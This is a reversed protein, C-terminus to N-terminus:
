VPNAYLAEFDARDTCIRFLRDIGVISFIEAIESRMGFLVLLGNKQILRRQFNVLLTIASSDVQSIGGMDLAIGRWSGAETKELVRRVATLNRVIFKGHLAVICWGGRESESIEM